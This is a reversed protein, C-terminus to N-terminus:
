VKNSVYIQCQHLSPSCKVLVFKYGHQKFLNRENFFLFKLSRLIKLQVNFKLYKGEVDQGLSGNVTM